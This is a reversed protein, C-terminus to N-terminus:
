AFQNNDDGREIVESRGPFAEVLEAVFATSGGVYTWDLDTDTAVFWRRDDPWWLDPVQLRRDGPESISAAARLPGYVLYYGRNPLEFRPVQELGQVIRRSRRVDIRRAHARARWRSLRPGSVAYMTRTSAWGYGEWIAFWVQEPTATHRVAVTAITALLNAENVGGDVTLDPRTLLYRDFGDPVLGGVTGFDGLRAKIWWAAEIDTPASVAPGFITM